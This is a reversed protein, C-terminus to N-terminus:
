DEYCALANRLYKISEIEQAKIEDKFENLLYKPLM